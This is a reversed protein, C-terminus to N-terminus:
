KVPRTWQIGAENVAPVMRTAGAYRRMRYARQITGDTRWISRKSAAATMEKVTATITKM